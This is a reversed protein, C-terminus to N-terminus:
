PHSSSFLKEFAPGKDCALDLIPSEQKVTYSVLTKSTTPDSFPVSILIDKASLEARHTQQSYSYKLFGSIDGEGPYGKLQFWFGYGGTSVRVQLQDGNLDKPCSFVLVPLDAFALCTAMLTVFFLIFTKM